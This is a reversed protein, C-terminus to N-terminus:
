IFAPKLARASMRDEYGERQESEWKRNTGPGWSGPGPGTRGRGGSGAEITSGM